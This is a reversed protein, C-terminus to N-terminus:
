TIKEKKQHKINNDKNFKKVNKMLKKLKLMIDLKEKTNKLLKNLGKKDKHLSKSGNRM